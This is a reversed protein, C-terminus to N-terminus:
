VRDKDDKGGIFIISQEEYHGDDQKILAACMIPQDSDKSLKALKDTADNIIKKAYEQRHERSVGDNNAMSQLMMGFSLKQQERIVERCNVCVIWDDDNDLNPNPISKVGEEIGCYSCLM